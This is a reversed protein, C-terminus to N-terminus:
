KKDCFSEKSSFTYVGGKEECKQKDTKIPYNCGNMNYADHWDYKGGSDECKQKFESDMRKIARGDVCYSPSMFGNIWVNDNKQCVEEITPPRPELSDSSIVVAAVALAGVIILGMTMGDTM